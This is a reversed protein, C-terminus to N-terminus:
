LFRQQKKTKTTKRARAMMKKRRMKKRGKRTMTQLSLHHALSLFLRLLFAIKDREYRQADGQCFRAARGVRILEMCTHQM